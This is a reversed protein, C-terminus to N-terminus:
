DKPNVDGNPGPPATPIPFANPADTGFPSGGLNPQSNEFQPFPNKVTPCSQWKWVSTAPMGACTKQLATAAGLLAGFAALLVLVSMLAYAVGPVKRKRHKSPPQPKPQAVQDVNVAM